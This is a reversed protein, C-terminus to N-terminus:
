HVHKVHKGDKPTACCSSDTCEPKKPTICSAHALVSAVALLSLIAKM